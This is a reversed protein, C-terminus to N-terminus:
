VAVRIRFAEVVADGAGAYVTFVDGGEPKVGDSYVVRDTFGALEWPLAAYVLPEPARLASFLFRTESTDASSDDM